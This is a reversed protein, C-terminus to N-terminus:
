VAARSVPFVCSHVVRISFGNSKFASVPRSLAVGACRIVLATIYSNGKPRPRVHSVLAGRSTSMASPPQCSDPTPNTCDPNNRVGVIEIGSGVPVRNVVAAVRGVTVSRGSWNRSEASASGDTAAQYSTVANPAAGTPRNPLASRPAITPGPSFRHCRPMLLRKVSPSWAPAGDSLTSSVDVFANLQGWYPLGLTLTVGVLTLAPRILEIPPVAPAMWCAPMRLMLSPTRASHYAFSPIGPADAGPNEEAM